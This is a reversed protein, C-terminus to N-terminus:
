VRSHPSYSKQWKNDRKGFLISGLRLINAGNAIAMRYDDSMGMSLFDMSTHSFQQTKLQEYLERLTSFCTNIKTKNTTNAGITMLGRVRLNPLEDIQKVFEICEAPAIGHKSVEGSTNVEILIDQKKGTKAIADNLVKATSFKEISHILTPNLYLLKNIKNTQLHGIFHFESISDKLAPIKTECEQVRSEGIYQIGAAIAERITEVSHTKTV